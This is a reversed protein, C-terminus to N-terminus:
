NTKAKNEKIYVSKLIDNFEIMYSKFNNMDQHFNMYAVCASIIIWLLLIIWLHLNISSIWVVLWYYIFVAFVYILFYIWSFLILSVRDPRIKNKSFISIYLFIMKTQIKYTIFNYIYFIARWIHKIILWIFAFIKSLINNFFVTSLSTKVSQILMVFAIMLVINQLPINSIASVVPESVRWVLISDIAVKSYDAKVSEQVSTKLMQPSVLSFTAMLIIFTFATITIYKFNNIMYIIKKNWRYKNKLYTSLTKFKAKSINLIDYRVNDKLRNRYIIIMMYIYIIKFIDKWWLSDKNRIYFYFLYALLLNNRKKPLEYLKFLIEHIEIKDKEKLESINWSKDKINDLFIMYKLKKDNFIDDYQLKLFWELQTIFDDLFKNKKDDKIILNMIYMLKNERIIAHIFRNIYYTM